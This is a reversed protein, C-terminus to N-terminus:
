IEELGIKEFYEYTSDYFASNRTSDEPNGEPVVIIMKQRARTLLICYANEPLEQVRVQKYKAMQKWRFFPSDKRWANTQTGQLSFTSTHMVSLHGLIEEQSDELFGQINNGYFYRKIM